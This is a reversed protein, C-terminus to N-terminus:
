YYEKIDEISLWEDQGYDDTVLVLEQEVDIRRVTYDKGVTCWFDTGVYVIKDGIELEDILSYDINVDENSYSPSNGILKNKIEKNSDIFSVVKYEWVRLKEHNVNAAVVHEPKFSVLVRIDGGFNYSFAGIHFGNHGACEQTRSHEVDHERSGEWAVVDGIKQIPNNTGKHVNTMEPSNAEKIFALYKDAIERNVPTGDVYTVVDDTIVIEEFEAPVQVHNVFDLKKYAYVNGDEDIPLNNKTCFEFLEEIAEYYKNRLCSEWFNILSNVSLRNNIFDLIKSSLFLPIVKDSGTLYLEEGILEFRNDSELKIRKIPSLNGELDEYTINGKNYEELSHILNNREQTNNFPITRVTDLYVTLHTHTCVYPIKTM